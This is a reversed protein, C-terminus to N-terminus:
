NEMIVFVISNSVMEKIWINFRLVTEYCMSQPECTNKDINLSIGSVHEFAVTEFVSFM